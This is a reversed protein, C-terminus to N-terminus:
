KIRSMKNWDYFNCNSIDNQEKIKIYGNIKAERIGQLFVFFIFFLFMGCLGPSIVDTIKFQSFRCPFYIKDTIQPM